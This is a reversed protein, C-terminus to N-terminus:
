QFVPFPVSLSVRIRLKLQRRNNSTFPLEQFIAPALPPPRSPIGLHDLIKRACAFATGPNSFAFQTLHEHLNEEKAPAGRTM